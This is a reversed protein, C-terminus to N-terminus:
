RVHSIGFEVQINFPESPKGCGFNTGIAPTPQEYISQGNLVRMIKESVLIPQPLDVASGCLQGLIVHSTDAL